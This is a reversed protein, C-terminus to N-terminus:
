GAAILPRLYDAPPPHASGAIKAENAIEGALRATQRGWTGITIPVSGREVAYRLQSAAALHFIQGDFPEAQGALLRRIVVVAERLTEIPRPQAVGIRDLWSGRSLGLFARGGTVMDLLAIQGAIEVPHLTYPNLAAPGLQATRVHPAM